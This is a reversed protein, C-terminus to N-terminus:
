LKIYYDNEPRIKIESITPSLNPTYLREIKSTNLINKGYLNKVMSLLLDIPSDMEDLIGIAIKDLDDKTKTKLFEEYGEESLTGVEIEAKSLVRDFMNKKSLRYLSMTGLGFGLVLSGLLLVFM